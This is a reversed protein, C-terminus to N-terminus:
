ENIFCFNFGYHTYGYIDSITNSVFEELEIYFDAEINSYHKESNVKNLIDNLYETTINSDSINNKQFLSSNTFIDEPVFIDFESPLNIYDSDTDWKINNINILRTEVIM